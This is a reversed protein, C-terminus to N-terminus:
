CCIPNSLFLSDPTLNLLQIEVDDGTRLNTVAASRDEPNYMAFKKAGGINLCIFITAPADKGDYDSCTFISGPEVESLKM